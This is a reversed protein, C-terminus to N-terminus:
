NKLRRVKYSWHEENPPSGLVIVGSEMVHNKSKVAEIFTVLEENM